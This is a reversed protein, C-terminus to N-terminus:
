FVAKQIDIELMEEPILGLYQNILQSDKNYLFMTPIGNIKGLAKVLLYNNEGNAIKYVIKHQNIFNKIEDNTKDELLVGIIDFDNKYKEQLKNLHPIEAICPSCWTTFFVLLIAKNKYIFNIDQDEKKILFSSGDILSLNFKMDDSQSLTFEMSINTDKQQKKKDDGCAVFLYIILMLSFIKKIKM